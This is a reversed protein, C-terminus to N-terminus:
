GLAALLGRVYKSNRSRLVPFRAAVDQLREAHEQGTKIEIVVADAIPLRVRLNPRPSLRQDYAAQSFDLTVRIAGDSTVYYERQYHTLLAPQDVTQLLARWEPGANARITGMIQTWPLALDLRCPLLYRKKRGLLNRKQKLELAPQIDTLVDGYWRLRLKQRACLGELNGNLSSLHLTDLYLSNVQRPPYAVVFGAPHLQIWSRAQALRHPECVLKIEYRLDSDPNLIQQNLISPNTM